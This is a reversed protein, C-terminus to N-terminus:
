INYGVKETASHVYSILVVVIDHSSLPLFNIHRSRAIVLNKGGLSCFNIERRAGRLEVCSMLLYGGTAALRRRRMWVYGEVQAVV